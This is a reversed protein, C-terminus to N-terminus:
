EIAPLNGRITVKAGEELRLRTATGAAFELVYQSPTSVSRPSETLPPVDTLIGVVRWDSSVFVMDLPILTNKMWFAQRRESGFLFIMGEQPGLSKRFMLGKTRSELTAAVEMQFVPSVEGSPSTLTLEVTPLNGSSSCANAVLVVAAFLGARVASAVLSIVRM